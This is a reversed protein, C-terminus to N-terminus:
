LGDVATICMAVVVLSFVWSTNPRFKRASVKLEWILARKLLIPEAGSTALQRELNKILTVVTGDSVLKVSRKSRVRLLESLLNTAVERSLPRYFILRLDVM